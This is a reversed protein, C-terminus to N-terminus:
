PGWNPDDITAQARVRTDRPCCIDRGRCHTSADNPAQANIKRDNSMTPADGLMKRILISLILRPRPCSRVDRLLARQQPSSPDGCALRQAVEIPPPDVRLRRQEPGPDRSM